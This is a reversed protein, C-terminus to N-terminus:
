AHVPSRRRRYQAADAQEQESYWLAAADRGAPDWHEQYKLLKPFPRWPQTHLTTFHILKSREPAYEADRSNWESGLQGWVGPTQVAKRLMLKRRSHQAEELPWLPLMRECDILMVSSEQRTIALFGHGQMDADFLEAPDAVYIQDVDNWIARGKGGAYHPIACRYNTFGTKWRRRDFGKLDAMLHIEYVRSPDRHKEISWLLVREAEQQAPETGIFIRVPPKNSPTVGEVVDLVLREPAAKTGPKRYLGLPSWYRGVRPLYRSIRASPPTVFESKGM